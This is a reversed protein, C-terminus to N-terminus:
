PDVESFQIMELSQRQIGGMVALAFSVDRPEMVTTGANKMLVVTIQFLHDLRTQSINNWTRVSGTGSPLHATIEHSQTQIINMFANKSDAAPILYPNDSDLTPKKHHHFAQRQLSRERKALKPVREARKIKHVPYDPKVRGHRARYM